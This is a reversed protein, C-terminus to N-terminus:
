NETKNRGCGGSYPCESCGSSCSSKGRKKNRVLSLTILFVVALLLTLVAITGANNAFFELM